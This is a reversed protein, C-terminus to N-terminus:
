LSIIDKNEKYNEAIAILFQNNLLYINNLNFDFYVKSLMEGTHFNWIIAYDWYNGFLYTPEWLRDKNTAILNYIYSNKINLYNHYKKSEGYDYSKVM